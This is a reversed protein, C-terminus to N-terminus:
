SRRRQAWRTRFDKRALQPVERGARWRSLPPLRHLLPGALRDLLRACGTAFRYLRPRAMVFAGVRMAIRELRAPKAAPVGPTGERVEARLHLLLRPIDIRVPCVDRCAGCLSSAFPLAAADALPLLQPTVVAGIPGPYVSGYAHGGVQQYVPCVNLCAGCRICALSPRTVEHALMRSRGNDLLVVHLEEPGEDGPRSKPGTLLSQYTSLAQGTGSRPLLRLFVDLDALRPVLKEIGALAVHVKPVSTVLRINGENELLLLSGTEAVLLNAGSIGLGARAFKARLTARAAATLAPPDAGPPTGIKQAFLEAIQGRSKHIAPVLIHFPTEGALQQIWEGLDTEVAEIGARELTDNLRVEETTMSKAKVCLGGAHARALELVLRVAEGADAAWHVRAGRATANREFSELYHDLHQLTHDKVARAQERWRQWDPAQQLAAQRRAAFTAAAARLAQRQQTDQLARAANAAFEQMPLHRPM